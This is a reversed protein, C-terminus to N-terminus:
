GLFRAGLLGHVAGLKTDPQLHCLRGFWVSKERLHKVGQVCQELQFAHDTNNIGVRHTNHARHVM